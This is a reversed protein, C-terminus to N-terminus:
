LTQTVPPTMLGAQLHDDPVFAFPPTLQPRIGAPADQPHEASGVQPVLFSVDELGVLLAGLLKRCSTRVATL